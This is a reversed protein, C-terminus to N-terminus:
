SLGAMSRAARSKKRRAAIGLLRYTVEPNVDLCAQMQYGLAHFLREWYRTESLGWRERVVDSHTLLRGDVNLRKSRDPFSAELEIMERPTPTPREREPATM